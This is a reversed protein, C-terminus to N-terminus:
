SLKPQKKLLDAISTIIILFDAEAEARTSHHAKTWWAQQKPNYHFDNSPFFEHALAVQEESLKSLYISLRLQLPNKDDYWWAVNWDGWNHNYIRLAWQHDKCYFEESQTAETALSCLRDQMFKRYNTKLSAAQKLLDHHKEVFSIEDDTMPTLYLEQQFHLVFDKAFYLWKEPKHDERTELQTSLRALFDSYTVRSWGERSQGVSPALIMKFVRKGTKELEKAYTEYSAFPNNEHHRIKNEILIAWDTGQLLLDIRKNDQTHVERQIQFSSLTLDSIESSSPSDCAQLFCEIFLTGLNHRNDPQFFFCLLESTPNEYYGRGGISLITEEWSPTALEKLKSLLSQLKPLNSLHHEM